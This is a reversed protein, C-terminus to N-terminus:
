SKCVDIKSHCTFGSGDPKCKYVENRFKDMMIPWNGTTQAIIEWAQFRAMSETWAYGKGYRTTCNAKVPAAKAAAKAKKPADQASANIAPIGLTLVAAAAALAPFTM